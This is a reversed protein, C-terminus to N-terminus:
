VNLTKTQYKRSFTRNRVLKFAQILKLRWESVSIAFKSNWQSKEEFRYIVSVSIHEVLVLWKKERESRLVLITLRLQFTPVGGGGVMLQFTPVGEAQLYTGGESTPKGGPYTGGQDLTPVGRGRFLCVSTFVYGGTTSRVRATFLRHDRDWLASPYAPLVYPPLRYAELQKKKKAKRQGETM